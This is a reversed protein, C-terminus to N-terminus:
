GAGKQQGHSSPGRNRSLLWFGVVLFGAGFFTSAIAATENNRLRDAYGFLEVGEVNLDYVDVEPFLFLFYDYAYLVTVTKGVDTPGLTRANRSCGIKFSVHKGANSVGVKQNTGGNKTSRCQGVFDLQGRLTKLEGISPFPSFASYLFYSGIWFFLVVGLMNKM